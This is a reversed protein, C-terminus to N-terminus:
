EAATGGSNKFFVGDVFNYGITVEPFNTCDWVIQGLPFRPGKLGEECEIIYTVKGNEIVAKRM